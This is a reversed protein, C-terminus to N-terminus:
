RPKPGINLVIVNPRPAFQPNVREAKSQVKAQVLGEALRLAASATTNSSGPEVAVQIGSNLDLGIGAPPDGAKAGAPDVRQWGAESLVKDLSVWLSRAELDNGPLSAAYQQGAFVKLKSSLTLRDTESLSRPALAEQLKRGTERESALAGAMELQAQKAEAAGALAESRAKDFRDKDANFQSLLRSERVANAGVVGKLETIRLEAIAQKSTVFSDLGDVTVGLKSADRAANSAREQAAAIAVSQITQLKESYWFAGTEMLMEGAVGLLVLMEFIHLNQKWWSGKRYEGVLGVVVALTAVLLAVDFGLEMHKAFNETPSLLWNM